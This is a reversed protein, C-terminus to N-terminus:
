NPTWNEQLLYFNRGEHRLLDVATYGASFAQRFAKRTFLRWSLARDPNNLKLQHLDEPIEILCFPSASVLQRVDLGAVADETEWQIPSM